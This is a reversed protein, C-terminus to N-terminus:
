AGARGERRNTLVEKEPKKLSNLVCQHLKLPPHVADVSAKEATCESFGYCKVVRKALVEIISGSRMTCHSVALSHSEQPGAPTWSQPLEQHRDSRM